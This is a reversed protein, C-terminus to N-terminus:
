EKIAGMTLGTVLYRRALIFLIIMPVTSILGVACLAQYDVKYATLFGSVKIPLTVVQSRSLTLAFLYEIYSGLFVFVATVAVGPMVLPMLVSFITRPMSAGDVWAAEELEVPITDYFGKMLWIALPINIPIHALVLAWYTDMIGVKSAILFLPIVLLIPPVMRAVLIFYFLGRTEPFRSRSFSYGGFIAAVLVIAAVISAVIVSDLMTNWIAVRHNITVEKFYRLTLNKSIDFLGQPLEGQPSLSAVILSYFPVITWLVLFIIVVVLLLRGSFLRLKNNM